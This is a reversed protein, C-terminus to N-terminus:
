RNRRQSNMSLSASLCLLLGCVSYCVARCPSSFSVFLTAFWLCLLLGSSRSELLQRQYVWLGDATMWGSTKATKIEEEGMKEVTEKIFSMMTWFLVQPLPRDKLKSDKKVIEERWKQAATTMAPIPSPEPIRLWWIWGTSQRLATLAENQHVLTRAVLKLVETGAQGQGGQGNGSNGSRPHRRGGTGGGRPNGRGKGGANPKGSKTADAEGTSAQEATRKGLVPGFFAEMAADAQSTDMATTSFSSALRGFHLALTCTSDLTHEPNLATSARHSLAERGLLM